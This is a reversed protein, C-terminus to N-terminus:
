VNINAAKPPCKFWMRKGGVKTQPRNPELCQNRTCLPM